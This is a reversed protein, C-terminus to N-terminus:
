PTPITYVNFAFDNNLTQWNGSNDRMATGEHYQNYHSTHWITTNGTNLVIYLIQDKKTNLNDNLYFSYWNPETSTINTTAESLKNQNSDLIEIKYKGITPTLYLEIKNTLGSDNLILSQALKKTNDYYAQSHNTNGINLKDSAEVKITHTLEYDPNSTFTIGDDSEQFLLRTDPEDGVGCEIPITTPELYLIITDGNNPSIKTKQLYIEKKEFNTNTVLTEGTFYKTGEKGINVKLIEPNGTTRCFLTTKKPIKREHYEIEQGIYKTTNKQTVYPDTNNYESYYTIPEINVKFNLDTDTIEQFTGSTNKYFQGETYDNNTKFTYANIPALQEISFFYNTNRKLIPGNFFSIHKTRLDTSKYGNFVTQGIYELSEPIGKYIKLTFPKNEKNGELQVEISKLTGFEHSLFTQGITYDNTESNETPAINNSITQFNTPYNQCIGFNCFDTTIITNDNCDSNEFCEASKCQAEQTGPKICREITAPNGDDPCDTNEFCDASKCQAEQTGPKLCRTINGLGNPCDSDKFCTAYECIFNKTFGCKKEKSKDPCDSDQFCQEHRCINNICKDQTAQNEDNCDKDINCGKTPKITAVSGVKSFTNLKNQEISASDLEKPLFRIYTNKQYTLVLDTNGIIKIEYDLGNLKKPIFVKHYYNQNSELALIIENYIFDIYNNAIVNTKEIQKKELHIKSVVLISAVVLSMFGLIVLFEIASQSKKM